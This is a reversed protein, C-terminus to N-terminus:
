DIRIRKKGISEEEIHAPAAKGEKIWLRITKIQEEMTKSLPVINKIAKELDKPLVKREEYFADILSTQVAYEIESGNFNDSIQALKDIETEKIQIKAKRLFINFIEKRSNETPIDVFFIEDFRGKRLLEPPLKSIDNATAIVFVPATKDQLWSLLSGFVRQSTGGDLGGQAFSKELEDIMLVCPSIAEATKFVSRINEESQGVLSGFLKGADLKLLVVELISAFARACLTKGTGPVGLLLIGKPPYIGVERAEKTFLKVRKSIWLKLNNLGGIDDINKTNEEFYLIGNRQIIQKKEKIALAVTSSDIKYQTCSMTVLNRIENITLGSCANSLRPIVSSDIKLKDALIKNEKASDILDKIYTEIETKTPLGLDLLYIDQQLEVPIQYEKGLIIIIKGTERAHILMERLVRQNSIQSLEDWPDKIVLIVNENFEIFAEKLIAFGPCIKESKIKIEGEDINLERLGENSTWSYITKNQNYTITLISELGRVEEITRLHIGPIRARICTLLDM